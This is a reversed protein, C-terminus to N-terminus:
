ARLKSVRCLMSHMPPDGSIPDSAEDETLFNISAEAWSGADGADPMFVVQPHIKETIEPKVLIKGKRTEVLVKEDKTIGLSKATEPHIEIYPEPIRKHLSSVNRYRSHAYELMRGGAIMILPYDKALDEKAIPGPKPEKFAPLPDQGYEVFKESYIEIKGSPTAFKKWKHKLPVAGEELDKLRIGTSEVQLELADEVTKWPFYKAYGMKRALEVWFEYDTKCEYLPKIVEKM